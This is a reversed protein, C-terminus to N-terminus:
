AVLRSTKTSPAGCDDCWVLASLRILLGCYCLTATSMRRQIWRTFSATHHNYVFTCEGDKSRELGLWISLEGCVCAKTSPVISKSAYLGRSSLWYLASPQLILSESYALNASWYASRIWLPSNQTSSSVCYATSWDHHASHPSGNYTCSNQPTPM